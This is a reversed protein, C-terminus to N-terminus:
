RTAVQALRALLQENAPGAYTAIRECEERTAFRQRYLVLTGGVIEQLTFEATFEPKSLHRMAVLSPREIRDLVMENRFDRGDASHMTFRWAAGPAFTFEHFTNTFGDPGWLPMAVAMDKVTIQIHDVIPQM